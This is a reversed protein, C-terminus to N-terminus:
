YRLGTRYLIHLFERVVVLRCLLIWCLHLQRLPYKYIYVIYYTILVVDGVFIYISTELIKDWAKSPCYLVALVRVTENSLFPLLLLLLSLPKGCNFSIINLETIKKRRRKQERGIHRTAYIYIYVTRGDEDLIGM